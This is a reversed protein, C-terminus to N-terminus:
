RSLKWCNVPCRVGKLWSVDYSSGIALSDKFFNYSM